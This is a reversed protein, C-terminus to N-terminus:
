NVLVVIVGRRQNWSVHQYEVIVIGVVTCGTKADLLIASEAV